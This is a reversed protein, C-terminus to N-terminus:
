LSQKARFRMVSTTIIGINLTPLAPERCSLLMASVQFFLRTMNFGDAMAHHFRFLFAKRRVGNQDVYNEIVIVQWLPKRMNFPRKILKAVAEEVAGHDKYKTKDTTFHEKIDFDAAAEWYPFSTSSDVLLDRFRNGDPAETHKLFNREWISRLQDETLSDGECVGLAHVSSIHLDDANAQSSSNPELLRKSHIKRLLLTVGLLVTTAISISKLLEIISHIMENTPLIDSSVACINFSNARCCM